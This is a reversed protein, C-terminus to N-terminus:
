YVRAHKKAEQELLRMYYPKYQKKTMYIMAKEFAALFRDRDHAQLSAEMEAAIQEARRARYAKEQEWTRHSM